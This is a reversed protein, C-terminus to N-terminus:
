GLREMVQAAKSVDIEAYVDTVPPSRHGLVVGATNRAAKQVETTLV